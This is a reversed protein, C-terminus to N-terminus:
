YKNEQLVFCISSASICHHSRVIHEAALAQNGSHAYQIIHSSLGTHTLYTDSSDMHQSLISSMSSVKSMSLLPWMSLIQFKVRRYSDFFNIHSNISLMFHIVNPQISTKLCLHYTVMIFSNLIQLIFGMVSNFHTLYIFCFRISPKQFGVHIFNLSPL